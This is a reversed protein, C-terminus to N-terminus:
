VAERTVQAIACARVSVPQPVCTCPGSTATHCVQRRELCMERREVHRGEIRARMPAHAHRTRNGLAQPGGAYGSPRM